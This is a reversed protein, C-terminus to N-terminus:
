SDFPGCDGDSTMKKMKKMPCWYGWEDIHFFKQPPVHGVGGRGNFGRSLIEDVHHAGDNGSNCIM